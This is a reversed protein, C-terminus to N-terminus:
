GRNCEGPRIEPFAPPTPQGDSELAHLWERVEALLPAVAIGGFHAPRGELKRQVRRLLSVAGARNGAQLHHFAATLQILAQLFSKEPEHLRLWASEWHEHAEFFENRRYCALGTALEGYTWDLTVCGDDEITRRGKLPTLRFFQAVTRHM